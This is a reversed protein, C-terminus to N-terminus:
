PALRFFFGGENSYATVASEGFPNKTRLYFPQNQLATPLEIVPNSIDIYQWSEGIGLEDDSVKYQTPFNGSSYSVYTGAAVSEIIPKSAAHEVLGRLQYVQEVTRDYAGFGVDDNPEIMTSYNLSVGEQPFDYRAVPYNWRNILAIRPSKSQLPETHREILYKGGVLDFQGDWDIAAGKKDLAVWTHSQESISTGPLRRYTNRYYGSVGSLDAEIFSWYPWNDNNVRNWYTSEFTSLLRAALGGNMFRMNFRSDTWVPGSSSWAPDSFGTFAILVPKGHSATGDHTTFFMEPDRQYIEWIDDAIQQTLTFPTYEELMRIAIVIKPPVFETIGKYVEIMELLSHHLALTYNYVHSGVDETSTTNTFDILVTDIGMSRMWYAHQKIVAPDESDYLGLVPSTTARYTTGDNPVLNPHNPNLDHWGSAGRGARGALEPLHDNDYWMIANVSHNDVQVLERGESPLIFTADALARGFGLMDISLGGTATQNIRHLIIDGSRLNLQSLDAMGDADHDALFYQHEYKEQLGSFTEGAVEFSTGTNLHCTFTTTDQDLNVFDANGDGDMDALLTENGNFPYSPVGITQQIYATSELVTNINRFAEFYGTQENLVGYDDFGDGNIDAFFVRYPDGIPALSLSVDPTASFGSGLNFHVPAGGTIRNHNILDAKGDGNIDAFFLGWDTTNNVTVGTAAIDPRPNFCQRLDGVLRFHDVALWAFGGTVPGADTVKVYVQQGVNVAGGDLSVNKMGPTANPAYVRDLESNDSALHLTVYNYDSGNSGSSWGTLMFDLFQHTLEFPDSTLTGTAAEGAMFTNVYWDNNWYSFIGGNDNTSPNSSFATGAATWGSLNGTEFDGNIPAEVAAPATNTNYFYVDVDGNGGGTISRVAMDAHGDGNFDNFFVETSPTEHPLLFPDAGQANLCILVLIVVTSKLINRFRKLMINVTM